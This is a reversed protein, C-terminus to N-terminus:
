LTKGPDARLQACPVASSGDPRPVPSDGCVRYGDPKAVCLVAGGIRFRASHNGKVWLDGGECWARYDAPMARLNQLEADIKGAAGAVGACALMVGIVAGLGGAMPLSQRNRGYHGNIKM